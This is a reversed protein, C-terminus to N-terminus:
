LWDQDGRGDYKHEVRRPAKDFEIVPKHVGQNVGYQKGNGKARKHIKALQVHRELQPRKQHVRAWTRKPDQSHLFAATRSPSLIFMERFRTKSRSRENAREIETSRLFIM